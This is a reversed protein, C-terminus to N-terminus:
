SPSQEAAKRRSTSRKPTSPTPTKASERQAEYRALREELAQRATRETELQSALNAVTAKADSATKDANGALSVMLRELQERQQKGQEVMRTLADIRKAEREEFEKHLAALDAQFQTRLREEAQQVQQQLSTQIQQVQTVIGDIRGAQRQEMEALDTQWRGQMAEREQQEHLALDKQTEELAAFRSTTAEEGKHLAGLDAQIQKIQEQLDTQGKQIAEHIQNLELTHSAQIQTLLQTLRKIQLPIDLIDVKRIDSTIAAGSDIIPYNARPLDSARVFRTRKNDGAGQARVPLRGSAIARRISVDQVRCVRAADTISLWYDDQSELEEVYRTRDKQINPTDEV